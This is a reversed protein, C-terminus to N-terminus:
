HLKKSARQYYENSEVPMVKLVERWKAVAKSSQGIGEYVLGEQFLRKAESELQAVAQALIKETDQYDPLIQSVKNLYQVARTYDKSDFYAKGKKYDHSVTDALSTKIHEIAHRVHATEPTEIGFSLVQEWERLADHYKAQDYFNQGHHFHQKKKALAETKRLRVEENKKNEDAMATKIEASLAIVASDEPALFAAETIIENARLYDSQSFAQRAKSVIVGVRELRVKKEDAALRKQEELEIIKERCQGILTIATENAADIKLVAQLRVMAENYNGANFQDKASQLYAQMRHQSEMSIMSETKKQEAPLLEKEPNPTNDSSSSIFILIIFVCFIGIVAAMLRKNSILSQIRNKDMGSDASDSFFDPSRVVTRDDIDVDSLLVTRDDEDSAAQAETNKESLVIELRYDGIQLNDGHKLPASDTKAGNVRIGNQSKLNEAQWQGNQFVIRCHERSVRKSRLVLDCHEARGIKIDEDEPYTKEYFSQANEYIKITLL